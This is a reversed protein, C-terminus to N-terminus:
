ALTVAVDDIVFSTQLSVDETGVFSITATGTVGNLVFVKQVYGNNHNVNSFTGVTTGNVKVALTDFAPANTTEATDIHLWFSLTATCGDLITVTQAVSDTHTTGYGDLWAMWTGSRPTQGASQTIVGATATWSGPGSEFGPNAIRNLTLCRNYPPIGGSGDGPNGSGDAFAASPMAVAAVAAAAAAALALRGSIATRISM